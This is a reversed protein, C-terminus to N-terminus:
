NQSDTHAHMGGLPGNLYLRRLNAILTQQYYVDDWLDVKLSIIGTAPISSVLIKRILPTDLM